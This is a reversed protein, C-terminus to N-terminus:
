MFLKFSTLFTTLLHSILDLSFTMMREARGKHFSMDRYFCAEGSTQCRILFFALPLTTFSVYLNYGLFRLHLYLICHKSRGKRQTPVKHINFTHSKKKRTLHICIYYNGVVIMVPRSPKASSINYLFISHVYRLFSLFIM